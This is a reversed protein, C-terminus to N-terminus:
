ELGCDYSRSSGDSCIKDCSSNRDVNTVVVVLKCENVFQLCTDDCQLRDIGVVPAVDNAEHEKGRDADKVLTAGHGLFDASM